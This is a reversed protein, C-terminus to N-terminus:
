FVAMRRGHFAPHPVFLSQLCRPCHTFPFPNPSRWSRPDRLRPQRQQHWRRHPRFQTSSPPSNANTQDSVRRPQPHPHAVDMEAAWDTKSRLPTTHLTPHHQPVASPSPLSPPHSTAPPAQLNNIRTDLEEILECLKASAELDGVRETDVRRVFEDVESRIDRQEVRLKHNVNEVLRTLDDTHRKACNALSKSQIADARVGDVEAQQKMVMEKLEQNGAKLAEVDQLLQEVVAKYKGDVASVVAKVAGASLDSAEITHTTKAPIDATQAAPQAGNEWQTLHELLVRIYDDESCSQDRIAKTMRMRIGKAAGPTMYRRIQEGFAEVVWEVPDM